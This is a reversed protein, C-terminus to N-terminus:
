ASRPCLSSSSFSLLLPALFGFRCLSSPFLCQSLQHNNELNFHLSVKEQLCRLCRPSSFRSRHCRLSQQRRTEDVQQDNNLSKSAAARAAISAGNSLTTLYGPRSYSTVTVFLVLQAQLNLSFPLCFQFLVAEKEKTCVSWGLGVSRSLSFIKRKGKEHSSDRRKMKERTVKIITLMTFVCVSVPEGPLPGGSVDLSVHLQLQLQLQLQKLSRTSM